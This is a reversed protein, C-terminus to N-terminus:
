LQHKNTHYYEIVRQNWRTVWYIPWAFILNLIIDSWIKERLYLSSIPLTQSNLKIGVSNIIYILGILLLNSVLIVVAMYGISPDAVLFTRTTYNIIMAILLFSVTYTGFFTNSTVDLMLGACFALWLFDNSEQNFSYIVVLLFLFNPVASATTKPFVINLALLIIICLAYTIIKNM